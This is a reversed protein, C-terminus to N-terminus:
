LGGEAGAIVALIRGEFAKKGDGADAETAEDL